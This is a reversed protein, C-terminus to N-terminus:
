HIPLKEVYKLELSRLITYVLFTLTICIEWGIDGGENIRRAAWGVFWTQDMGIVAFVWGVCMTIFGAYGIPIDVYNQKEENYTLDYNSFRNKRFVFHESISIGLYISVNYGIISLFNSLAASFHYYAPISIALSVFNGVVCWLLRPIRAFRSWIAQASLSLSYSGPLNNAILSLALLVCCFKGFKGLSNEVLIGYCLGGISTEEYAQALSENSFTTAGMAAGLIMTFLCPFSLGMVMAWFVKLPPTDSPKYVTYDATSPTWGAVFGFVISIYTLINGINESNDFVKTPSPTFDGEIKLRAIIVFCIIVNPIASYREYTHIVKYGFFALVLTALVIIVCGLPAPCGLTWLLQVGALANIANWGVCSIVNFIAFFRAAINGTLYRLLIQQRLGTRMGLIAYLGVPVAGLFTFFITLLTVTYFDLGLGATGLAGTSIAAISMNPSFFITFPTWFSTDTRQSEPVREIGRVEVEAVHNLIKLWRPTTKLSQDEVVTQSEVDKKLSM